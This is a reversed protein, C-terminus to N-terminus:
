GSFDFYLLNQNQDGRTVQEKGQRVCDVEGDVHKFALEAFTCTRELHSRGLGSKSCPNLIKVHIVVDEAVKEPGAVVGEVEVEVAHDVLVDPFYRYVEDFSNECM